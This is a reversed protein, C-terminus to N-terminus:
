AITIGIEDRVTAADSYFSVVFCHNADFMLIFFKNVDTNDRYAVTITKDPNEVSGVYTLIGKTSEEFSARGEEWSPGSACQTTPASLEPTNPPLTTAAFAGTMTLCVFALTAAFTKFM